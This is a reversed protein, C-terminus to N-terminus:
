FFVWESVRGLLLYDVYRLHGAHSAQFAFLQRWPDLLAMAFSHLSPIMLCDGVSRWEPLALFFFPRLFHLLFPLHFYSRALFAFLHQGLLTRLM